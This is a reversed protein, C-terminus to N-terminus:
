GENGRTHRWLIIDSEAVVNRGDGSKMRQPRIGSDGGWRNEINAFYFYAKRLPTVM